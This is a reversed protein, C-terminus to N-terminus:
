SEINTRKAKQKNISRPIIKKINYDTNNLSQQTNKSGLSELRWMAM